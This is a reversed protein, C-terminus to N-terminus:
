QRDAMAIFAVRHGWQVESIFVSNLAAYVHNRDTIRNRLRRGILPPYGIM